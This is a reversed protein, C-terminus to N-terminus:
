KTYRETQGKDNVKVGHWNIHDETLRFVKAIRKRTKYAPIVKFNRTETIYTRSLKLTLSLGDITIGSKDMLERLTPFSMEDRTKKEVIVSILYDIYGDKDKVLEEAKALRVKMARNEKALREVNRESRNFDELLLKIHTEPDKIDLSCEPPKNLTKVKAVRLTKNETWGLVM